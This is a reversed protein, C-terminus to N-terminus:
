KKRSEAFFSMAEKLIKNARKLERNEKMIAATEADRPSVYKNGSGVFPSDPRRNTNQVWHRLTGEPVGM